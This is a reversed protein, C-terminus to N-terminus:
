AKLNREIISRIKHMHYSDIIGVVIPRIQGEEFKFLTYASGDDYVLDLRKPYLTLNKNIKSLERQTEQMNM